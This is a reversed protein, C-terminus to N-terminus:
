SKLSNIIEKKHEGLAPAPTDNMVEQNNFKAPYRLARVRGQNESSIEKFLGNALIQPHTMLEDLTTTAACPVDENRLKTLAEDTTLSEFKSLLSMLEELNTSRAGTTNFKENEIYEPKGLARFIGFWQLDNM